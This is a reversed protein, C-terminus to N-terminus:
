EWACGCAPHRLWGRTELRSLRPHLTVTSSWTSPRGGDVYTTLDRAAWALAVAALVPDVPETAGDARDGASAYAYQRVLLPWAPDLDTCHADLCRLCATSGPLVFPGVVARGETLRVLLYPTGSRTWEDLLDRDPEGVSVLVGGDPPITRRPAAERLGATAALDVFSSRLSAASQHGFWRTETRWSRRAALADAAASGADRVLAATAEPAVGEATVPPNLDRQDVLADHRGLLDLASRDDYAETEAPAALLRLTRRVSPSDDLLVASSPDLGVQLQRQGRRLVHTGPRLVPRM